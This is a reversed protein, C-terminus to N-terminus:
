SWSFQGKRIMNMAEMGRLTARASNFSGFGMGPKTLRKIFRHDQEVRNNLYKVQRLETTESLQEDAKLQDVAPPYAANKDVNIVRPAQTHLANLTRRLFREAAAADHKACLLFDLTHGQSDM